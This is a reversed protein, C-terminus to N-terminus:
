YCLAMGFVFFLYVLVLMISFDLLERLRAIDDERREESRRLRAERDEQAKIGRKSYGYRKDITAYDNEIFM